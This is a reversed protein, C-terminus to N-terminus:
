ARRFKAQRKQAILEEFVALHRKAVVSWDFRRAKESAATGIKSRAAGDQFPLLLATALASDNSPPVMLGNVGSEILGIIGGVETTVVCRGAAMAELAVLPLGEWSITPVAVCAANQLLWLKEAGGVFGVFHIRSSLGSQEAQAKLAVAEIGEGAIVLQVGPLENAIKRFAEILFSVGKRRHLRGLFFIYPTTELNNAATWKSSFAVPTSCYAFDVGNPIEHLRKACEPALGIQQDKIYPSIAIVADSRSLAERIKSLIGPHRRFRSENALDSGQSSVVLPLNSKACIKLAAFATPFSSHCHVIDFPWKKQLQVLQRRLRARELWAFRSFSFRCVRYPLEAFAEITKEGRTQAVVATEHGMRLYQRALQDVVVAHGNLRSFSIETVQCIRVATM